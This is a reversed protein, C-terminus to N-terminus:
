ILYGCDHNRGQVTRNWSGWCGNQESKSKQFFTASDFLGRAPCLWFSHGAIKRLLSAFAAVSYLHWNFVCFNV